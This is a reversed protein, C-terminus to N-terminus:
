RDIQSLVNRMPADSIRMLGRYPENLELILFLACAVSLTGVLLAIGVTLNLRVFLGFGLFLMCIWFVLVGLFPWPISTGFQETMLVRTQMITDSLQEARSQTARQADTKPVLDELQALLKQPVAFDEPLLARASWIRDQAAAITDHLGHRVDRADPGYSILLQDLLIIDAALSQLEDRQRDFYTHASAILLSLVLASITAILGMVLKVVDKTEADRHHEPLKFATGILAAAFSSVFVLSAIALPTM